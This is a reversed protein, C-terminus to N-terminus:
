SRGGTAILFRSGNQLATQERLCWPVRSVHTIPASSQAATAVPRIRKRRAEGQRCERDASCRQPARFILGPCALQEGALQKAGRSCVRFTDQHRGIPRAQRQLAACDRKHMTLPDNADEPQDGSWEVFRRCRRVPVSAGGPPFGGAARVHVSL